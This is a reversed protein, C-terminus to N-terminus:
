SMPRRMSRRQNDVGFPPRMWVREPLWFQAEILEEPIEEPVWGYCEGLLGVFFPRCRQIEELCIPLIKGEAAEEQTIGWRLDVASWAVGRSECLKRLQPFTFKTLEEREEQMDRFTSSIFVRIERPRPENYLSM